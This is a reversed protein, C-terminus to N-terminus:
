KQAGKSIINLSKKKRKNAVRRFLNKKMEEELIKKRTQNDKKM